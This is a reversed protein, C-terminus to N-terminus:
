GRKSKQQTPKASPKASPKAAPKAAAPTKEPTKEVPKAPMKALQEEIADKIYKEISESWSIQRLVMKGDHGFLVMQPVGHNRSDAYYAVLENTIFGIPYNIKAQTMYEKVSKVEEAEDKNDKALGLVTFGRERYQNYIAVIHPAHEKCHPCKSWFMDMLVVKGRLSSLKMKGPSAAKAAAPVLDVVMEPTDGSGDPMPLEPVDFKGLKPASAVVIVALAFSLLATHSVMKLWNKSM